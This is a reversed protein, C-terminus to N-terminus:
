LLEMKRASASVLGPIRNRLKDTQNGHKPFLKPMRFMAIVICRTWKRWPTNRGASALDVMAYTIGDCCGAKGNHPIIKAQRCLITHSIKGPKMSVSLLGPPRIM